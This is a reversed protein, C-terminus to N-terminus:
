YRAFLFAGPGVHSMVLKIISFNTGWVTLLMVAVALAAGQRQAPPENMSAALARRLDLDRTRCAPAANATAGSARLRLTAVTRGLAARVPCRGHPRDVVPPRRDLARLGLRSDCRCRM